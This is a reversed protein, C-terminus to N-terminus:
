TEDPDESRGGNKKCIGFVYVDRTESQTLHSRWVPNGLMEFIKMNSWIRGHMVFCPNGEVFFEELQRGHSAIAANRARM